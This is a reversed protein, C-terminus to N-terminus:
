KKQKDIRQTLTSRTVRCATEAELKNFRKSRRTSALRTHGRCAGCRKQPTIALSQLATAVESICLKTDIIGHM